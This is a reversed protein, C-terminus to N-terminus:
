DDRSSWRRQGILMLGILLPAGAAVPVVGQPNLARREDVVLSSTNSVTIAGDGETPILVFYATFRGDSIPTVRWALTETAGAEIAGIQRTLTSSWDEPDVSSRSRPDTIDLHLAVPESATGGSNTISITFELEEGVDVSRSTPEVRVELGDAAQVTTLPAVAVAADIVLAVLALARM